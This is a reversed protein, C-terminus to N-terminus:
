YKELFTILNESKKQQFNSNDHQPSSVSGTLYEVVESEAGSKLFVMERTPLEAFIYGGMVGLILYEYM